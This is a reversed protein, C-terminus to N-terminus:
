SFIVMLLFERAVRLLRLCMMLLFLYLFSRRITPIKCYFLASTLVQLGKHASSQKELSCQSTGTSNQLALLRNHDFLFAGPCGLCCLIFLMLFLTKMMRPFFFCQQDTSNTNVIKCFKNTSSGNRKEGSTRASNAWIEHEAIPRCGINTESTRWVKLQLACNM